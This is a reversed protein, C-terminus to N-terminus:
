FNSVMDLNDQQSIEGQEQIGFNAVEPYKELFWSKIVPYRYAKSHCESILRMENFEAINKKRVEPKGHNMIYDEMYKYTLGKYSEKDSNRKITRQVVTYNPYDRRVQQLHAYEVSMTNMAFKAFTRDMIITRNTHSIKLTNKM